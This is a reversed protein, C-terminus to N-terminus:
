PAIDCQMFINVYYLSSPMTKQVSLTGTIYQVPVLSVAM